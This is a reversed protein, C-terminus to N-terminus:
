RLNHVRNASAKDAADYGAAAEDLSGSLQEIADLVAKLEARWASLFQQAAPAATPGFGAETADDRIKEQAAKLGPGVDERLEKAAARLQDGRAIVTQTM